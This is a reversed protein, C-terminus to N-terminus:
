YSRSIVVRQCCNKATCVSKSHLNQYEARPLRISCKPCSEQPESVFLLRGQASIDTLAREMVPWEPLSQLGDMSGSSQGLKLKELYIEVEEQLTTSSAVLVFFKQFDLDKGLINFFGGLDDKDPAGDELRYGIKILKRRADRVSNERSEISHFLLVASAVADRDAETVDHRLCSTMSRLLWDRALLVDPNLRDCIYNSLHLAWSSFEAPKESQVLKDFLKSFNKLTRKEYREYKKRRKEVEPGTPLDDEDQAAHEGSSEAFAGRKQRLSSLFLNMFGEWAASQDKESRRDLTPNLATKRLESVAIKREKDGYKEPPSVAGSASPEKGVLRQPDQSFWAMIAAVDEPTESHSLVAILRSTNPGAKRALAAFTALSVFGKAVQGDTGKFELVLRGSTWARLEVDPLAFAFAGDENIKAVGIIETNGIGRVFFNADGVLDSGILNGSITDGDLVARLVGEFVLSDDEAEDVDREIATLPESPSYNWSFSPERQVRMVCTEVNRVSGFAATTM